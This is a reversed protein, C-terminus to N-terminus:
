GGYHRQRTSRLDEAACDLVKCEIDTLLRRQDLVLALQALALLGVEIPSHAAHFERSQEAAPRRASLTAIHEDDDRNHTRRSRWSLRRSRCRVFRSVSGGSLDLMETPSLLDDPTVSIRAGVLNMSSVVRHLTLLQRESITTKQEMESFAQQRVRRPTGSCRRSRARASAIPRRPRLTAKFVALHPM